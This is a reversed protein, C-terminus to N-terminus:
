FRVTRCCLNMLINQDYGGGIIWQGKALHNEEIYSRGREIIEQISKAGTLNLREDQLGTLLVHCHSDNFGPVVCRGELDTKTDGEAALALIEEDNGVAKIIGDEVAMAQVISGNMTHINGNYYIQKM